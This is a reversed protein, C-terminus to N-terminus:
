FSIKLIYSATSMCRSNIKICHIVVGLPLNLPVMVFHHNLVAYHLHLTIHWIHPLPIEMKRQKLSKLSLSGQTSRNVKGCSFYKEYFNFSHPSKGLSLLSVYVYWPPHYLKLSDKLFGFNESRSGDYFMNTLYFPKGPPEFLLSNGAIHSVQTWDRTQSSGRSSPM